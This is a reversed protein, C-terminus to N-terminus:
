GAMVLLRRTLHSNKRGVIDSSTPLAALEATGSRPSVTASAEHSKPGPDTKGPDVTCRAMVRRLLRPDQRMEIFLNDLEEIATAPRRPTPFSQELSGYWIEVSARGPCAFFIWRINKVETNKPRGLSVRARRRTPWCTIPVNLPSLDNMAGRMWGPM